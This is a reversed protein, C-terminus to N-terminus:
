RPMALCDDLAPRVIAAFARARRLPIHDGEMIAAIEHDATTPYREMRFTEKWMGSNDFWRNRPFFSWQGSNGIGVMGSLKHSGSMATVTVEWDDRASSGPNSGHDFILHVDAFSAALAQRAQEMRAKCAEARSTAPAPQQPVTADARALSTAAIGCLMMVVIAFRV